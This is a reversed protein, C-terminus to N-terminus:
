QDEKITPTIAQLFEDRAQEITPAHQDLLSALRSADITDPLRISPVPEAAYLLVAPVGVAPLGVAQSAAERADREYQNTPTGDLEIMARDIGVQDLAATTQNLDALRDREAQQYAPTFANAGTERDLPGPDTASLMAAVTEADTNTGLLEGWSAIADLGIAHWGTQGTDSEIPILLTNGDIIPDM